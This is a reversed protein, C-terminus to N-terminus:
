QDASQVDAKESDDDGDDVRDDDRDADQDVVPRLAHRVVWDSIKQGHAIGKNVAHRFHFGVLIRSLGNEEAAESFSNFSRTRPSADLCTQGSPLSTSCVRFSVQDTRFFHQLIRSAAGCEVAHGSDYDPIPPTVVLPTWNPDGVTDPNGDANGERIATVTRWFNYFYKTNFTSIYGDALALNLLAFLRASEWLNIGKSVSVTRTIRNWMLPSSEVWFLAIETQEPTRASPTIIGDGGLAKIENFDQTYRASNIPFPPRPRFQQGSRLVFPPINGWHPLFAFTSGPTFRYEGPETGQPYAPDLVLQTNWGDGARLALISLAAARGVIVGNAKARGNPIQALSAAFASDISSQQSSFGYAVLQNFQDLLVDHAATAVAAEPSADSTIPVHVAYPKYRRDIGNLANHVAAFTLAYVRSEFVPNGSLGSDFAARTAVENWHTVENALLRNGTSAASAAILLLSQALKTFKRAHDASRIHLKPLWTTFTNPALMTTLMPAHHM